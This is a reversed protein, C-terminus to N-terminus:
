KGKIFSWMVVLWPAGLGVGFFLTMIMTLKVKGANLDFPLNEGPCGPRGHGGGYLKTTTSFQRVGRVLVGLRGTM